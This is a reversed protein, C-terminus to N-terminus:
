MTLVPEDRPVQMKSRAIKWRMRCLSPSTGIVSWSYGHRHHLKIDAFGAQEFLTRGEEECYYKAYAPNLQDFVVEYRRRREM